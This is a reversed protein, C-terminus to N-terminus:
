VTQGVLASPVIKMKTRIVLDTLRQLGSDEGLVDLPRRGELDSDYSNLWDQFQQIDYFYQFVATRLVNIRDPLRKEEAARYRRIEAPLIAGYVCGLCAYIAFYFIQSSVFSDPDGALSPLLRAIIIGVLVAGGGMAGGTVLASLGRQLHTNSPRDLSITATVGCLGPVLSWILNSDFYNWLIQLATTDPQRSIQSLLDAVNLVLYFLLSSFGCILFIKAYANMQAYGSEPSFYDESLIYRSRFRMAQAVSFTNVLMIKALLVLLDFALPPLVSQSSQVTWKAALMAILLIAAAASAVKLIPEWPVGSRVV